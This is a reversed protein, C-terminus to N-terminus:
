RRDDAFCIGRVDERRFPLTLRESREHTAAYPSVSRTFRTPYYNRHFILTVARANLDSIARLEEALEPDRCSDIAEALKEQAFRTERPEERASAECEDESPTSPNNGHVWMAVEGDVAFPDIPEGNLWVNFHVHPAIWPFGSVCDLGSAGSLAIPEGREVRAGEAVLTRGLHNSTTILGDGHDLVIKLGGRHFENSVRAVMGRAPATVTTGPPVAFDTGNHSDYTLARGRFDRVHTKRVSWGEAIPTPTHNFLNVVFVRRDSRRRGAWASLAIGPEFLQLSSLGFKSRPTYVDGRLAFWAQRARLTLPALGFTEAISLKERM